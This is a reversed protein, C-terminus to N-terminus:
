KSFVYDSLEMFATQIMESEEEMSKIASQLKENEAKLSELESPGKPTNDDVISQIFADMKLPDDGFEEHVIIEFLNSLEKSMRNNKICEEIYREKFEGLM